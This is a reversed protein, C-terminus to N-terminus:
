DGGPHDVLGAAARAPVCGLCFALQLVARCRAFLRRFDATPPGPLGLPLDPDPWASLVPNRAIGVTAANAVADVAASAALRPARWAPQRHCVVATDDHRAPGLDM